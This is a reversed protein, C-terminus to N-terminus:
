NISPSFVGLVTKIVFCNASCWSELFFKIQSPSSFRSVIIRRLRKSDSSLRSWILVSFSLVSVSKVKSRSPRAVSPHRTVKEWFGLRRQPLFNLNFKMNTELTARSCCIVFINWLHRLVFSISVACCQFDFAQWLEIWAGRNRIWLILGRYIM